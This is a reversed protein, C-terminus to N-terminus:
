IFSRSWVTYQEQSATGIVGIMIFPLSNGGGSGGLGTRWVIASPSDPVNKEFFLNDM